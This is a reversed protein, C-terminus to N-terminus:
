EAVEPVPIINAENAAIWENSAGSRIGVRRCENQYKLAEDNGCGLLIAEFFMDRAFSEAYTGRLSSQVLAAGELAAADDFSLSFSQKVSKGKLSITVSGNLFRGNFSAVIKRAALTEILQKQIETM